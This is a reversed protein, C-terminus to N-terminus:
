GETSPVADAIHNQGTGCAVPLLPLSRRVQLVDEPSIFQGLHPRVDVRMREIPMDADLLPADDTAGKDWPFTEQFRHSSVDLCVCARFLTRFAILHGLM